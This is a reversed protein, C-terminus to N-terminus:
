HLRAVGVEVELVRYCDLGRVPDDDSKTQSPVIYQFRMIFKACHMYRVNHFVGLCWCVYMVTIIKKVTTTKM